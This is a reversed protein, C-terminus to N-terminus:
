KIKSINLEICYSSFVILWYSKLKAAYLIVHPLNLFKQHRPWEIFWNFWVTQPHSGPMLIIKLAGQPNWYVALISFWQELGCSRVQMNIVWELSSNSDPLFSFSNLRTHSSNSDPLFPFADLFCYIIFM